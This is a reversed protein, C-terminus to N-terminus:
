SPGRSTRAIVSTVFDVESCPTQVTFIFLGSFSLAMFVSTALSSTDVNSSIPRSEETM